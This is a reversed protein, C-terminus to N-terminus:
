EESTELNDDEISNSDLEEEDDEVNESQAKM